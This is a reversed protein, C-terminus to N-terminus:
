KFVVLKDPYRISSCCKTLFFSLYKPISPEKDNYMELFKRLHSATKLILKIQLM